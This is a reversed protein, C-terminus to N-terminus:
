LNNVGFNSLADCDQLREGEVTEAERHHNSIVKEVRRVKDDELFDDIYDSGMEAGREAHESNEGEMPNLFGEEIDEKRGLDHFLASVELVEEDIELGELEERRMMRKVYRHTRVLHHYRYNKGGALEYYDSFEERILAKLEEVERQDLM